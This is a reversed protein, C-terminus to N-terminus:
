NVEEIAFECKWRLACRRNWPVTINHLGSAVNRSHSLPLGITLSYTALYINLNM